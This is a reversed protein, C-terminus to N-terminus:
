TKEVEHLIHNLITDISNPRHSIEQQEKKVPQHQVIDVIQAFENPSSAIALNENNKIIEMIEQDYLKKLADSGFGPKDYGLFIGQKGRLPALFNETSVISATADASYTAEQISIDTAPTVHLNDPIDPRTSQLMEQRNPDRPHPRVMLAFKKEPRSKALEIMSDLTSLFTEENIRPNLNSDASNPAPSVDGLYLVGITGEDIHLKERGQKAYEPGKEIELADVVPTGTTYIKEPPYEPLQHLLIKKALDDNCFIGDIEEMQKFRDKDFLDTGGVGVWGTAIFFLKKAGFVSKGGFLLPSNPSNRPDVPVLAVDYPDNEATKMADSLVPNEPNRVQKFQNDNNKEFVTIAIYYNIIL